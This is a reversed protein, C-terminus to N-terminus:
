ADSAPEPQLADNYLDRFWQVFALAQPSDHKFFEAQIATGFPCGPDRQWALWCHLEAKKHDADSFRAGLPRADSTAKQAHDFLKDQPPILTRVLDEIAGTSATNDPMLWVGLRYVGNPSERILGCAPPQEPLQIELGHLNNRIADWRNALSMDADIVYGVPRRTPAKASTAMNQLVGRDSKGEKLIVPGQREHLSIGHRALLSLITYRDDKGEVWLIPKELSGVSM